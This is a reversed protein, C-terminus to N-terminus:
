WIWGIHQGVHGFTPKIADLGPSADLGLKGVTVAQRPEITPAVWRCLAVGVDVPFDLADTGAQWAHRADFTVDADTQMVERRFLVLGVFPSHRFM